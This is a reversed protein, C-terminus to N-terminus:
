ALANMRTGAAFDDPSQTCGHLMVVLPVAQGSYGSPVYLKYARSGAENGYSAALFRGGHPVVGPAPPPSLRPLEGIGPESPGRKVRDLFSRLAQPLHARATGPAGSTPRNSAGTGSAQRGPPSPQSDTLEITDPTLDIIRSGRGAPAHATEGTPGSAPDPVTGSGFVRQLLATAETLRGARTLRTAEIMDPHLGDNM